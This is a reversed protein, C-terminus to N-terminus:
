LSLALQSLILAKLIPSISIEPILGLLVPDTEIRIVHWLESMRYQNIKALDAVAVRVFIAVRCQRDIV